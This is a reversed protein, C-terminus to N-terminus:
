DEAALAKLDERYAAAMTGDPYAILAIRSGAPFALVYAAHNLEYDEDDGTPSDVTAPNMGLQQQVAVLADADGTLGIFSTDFRDLWERLAAPRDREPDATIFIVRVRARVEPPLDDLASAIMAMHTPCIDDCHTYGAYLLTIFGDTEARLDFPRGDTTQLSADPIAIERSMATGQYSWREGNIVVGEGGLTLELPKADDDGCSAAALALLLAGVLPITLATRSAAPRIPQPQAM